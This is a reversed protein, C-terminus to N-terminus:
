LWFVDAIQNRNIYVNGVIIAASIAEINADIRSHIGFTLGYGSMNVANVM